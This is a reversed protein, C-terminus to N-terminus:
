EFTLADDDMKKLMLKTNRATEETAKATRENATSGFGLSAAATANFTGFVDLKSQATQVEPLAAHIREKTDVAPQEAAERENKAQVLADAWEKRAQNLEEEAKGIADMDSKQRAADVGDAEKNIADITAGREREIDGIARDRAASAGNDKDDRQRNLRTTEADIDKTVADLDFSDDFFSALYAIKKALWGVAENWVKYFFGIFNDLTDSFFKTTVAWTEQLDYFIDTAILVLGYFADTFIRDVSSTFDTWYKTLIAIGKKWAVQLSLWLIKAALAVDGAALADKIGQFSGVAFDKIQGFVDMAADKLENFRDGLYDIVKGGIGSVYILFGALAVLGVILAGVPTLIFGVAASVVGAVASFATGIGGVITIAMSITGTILGIGGTIISALAGFVAGISSIIAGLAVLTAGVGFIVAGIKLASVILGQNQKLWQRTGTILKTLWGAWEMLLPAVASGIAAAVSRLVARIQNMAETLAAAARADDNSMTVGLRQAEDRLADLDDIMPLLRTGSKGFIDMAAAARQTPDTIANLRQAIADFQEEPSLQKLQEASLGIKGLAEAAATSGAGAEAVVRQMRRLGAEVDELEAGSQKAAYGIESLAEASVGTRQSMKELSDGFDAFDKVAALIPTVIGAGIASLKLGLGSISQGFAKLKASATNLGRVLQNSDAYLEVYALGARIGQASPM